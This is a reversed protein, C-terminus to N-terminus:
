LMLWDWVLEIASTDARSSATVLCNICMHVVVDYRHLIPVLKHKALLQLGYRGRINKSSAM